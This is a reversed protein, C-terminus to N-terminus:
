HETVIVQTVPCKVLTSKVGAFLFQYEGGGSDRNLAGITVFILSTFSRTKRLCWGDSVVQLVLLRDGM